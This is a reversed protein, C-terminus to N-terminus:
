RLSLLSAVREAAATLNITAEDIAEDITTVRQVIPVVVTVGDSRFRAADGSVGGVLAIVPVKSQKAKRALSLPLKGILSQHDLMGEGTILLDASELVDTFHAQEAILDAGSVLKAGLFHRLGFGIGGAAGDGPSSNVEGTTVELYHQMAEDLQALEAHAFGKQPGFQYVAGEAGVLPSSVDAAGILTVDKLRKDLQTVDTYAIEALQQASGTLVTGTRDYFRVGLVSLLGMGGDVTASGGLGVVIKRAGQNLATMILEGTGASSYHQPHVTETKFQIGSAASVDIYATKTAAVWGYEAQIVDGIPSTTATHCWSASPANALLARATGEGGDAMPITYTQHGHAKFVAAILENAAVSSLSGKMADMAIIINM